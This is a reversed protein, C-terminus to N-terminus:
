PKSEEKPAAPHAVEDRIHIMCWVHLAYCIGTMVWGYYMLVGIFVVDVTGDIWLPIFGKARIREITDEKEGSSTIHAMAVSLVLIATTAFILIRGFGESGLVVAAYLIYAFAANFLLWRLYRQITKM